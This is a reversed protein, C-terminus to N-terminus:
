GKPLNAQLVNASIKDLLFLFQEQEERSLGALIKEGMESQYVLYLEFIRKGKITLELGFSRKDRPNIVRKLYDKKELRDIISTLTSKPIKIIELYERLLMDKSNGAMTILNIEVPTFNSLEKFHEVDRVTSSKMFIDLWLSAVRRNGEFASM